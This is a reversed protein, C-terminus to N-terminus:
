PVELPCVQTLKVTWYNKFNLKLRYCMMATYFPTTISLLVVYLVGHIFRLFDTHLKALLVQLCIGSSASSPVQEARVITVLSLPCKWFSTSPNPMPPM